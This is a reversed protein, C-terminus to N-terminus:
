VKMFYDYISFRWCTVKSLNQLRQNMNRGFYGLDRHIKSNMVITPTQAKGSHKQFHKTLIKITYINGLTLYSSTISTANGLQGETLNAIGRDCSVLLEALEDDSIVAVMPNINLELANYHAQSRLFKNNDAVQIGLYLLSILVGVAALIDAIKKIDSLNM